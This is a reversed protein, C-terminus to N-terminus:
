LLFLGTANEELTQWSQFIVHLCLNKSTQDLDRYSPAISHEELQICLNIPHIHLINCRNDEMSDANSSAVLSCSPKSFSLQVLYMM